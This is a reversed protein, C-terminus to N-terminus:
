NCKKLVYVSQKDYEAHHVFSSIEFGNRAIINAIYNQEFRVCYKPKSGWDYFYNPPNISMPPVNEETYATFFIHGNTSLLRNCEQLYLDIEVDTLHCFVGYIYVWDFSNDQLPLKFGEQMSKGNPNYRDNQIDLCIFTHNAKKIYKNCWEIAKPSIDLGVYISNFQAARLGFSFRGVGCGIDLVSSDTSLGFHELRRVEDLASQLFVANTKFEAEGYRMFYPPLDFGLYPESQPQFSRYISLLRKKLATPIWQTIRMNKSYKSHHM